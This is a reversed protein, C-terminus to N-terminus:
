FLLRTKTQRRKKKKFHKLDRMSSLQSIVWGQSVSGPSFFSLFFFFGFGLGNELWINWHMQKQRAWRCAALGARRLQRGAAACLKVQIKLLGCPSNSTTSGPLFHPRYLHVATSEREEGDVCVRWWRIPLVQAGRQWPGPNHPRGQWSGRPPWSRGRSTETSALHIKISNVPLELLCRQCICSYVHRITAQLTGWAGNIGLRHPGRAGGRCPCTPCTGAQGWRGWAHPPPPVPYGWFLLDCIPQALTLMSFSLLFFSLYKLLRQFAESCRM